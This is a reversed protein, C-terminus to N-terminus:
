GLYVSGEPYRILPPTKTALFFGLTLPGLRGLFMIVCIVARGADSLEATIGRSLGVTGFASTVEFALDLFPIDHTVLLVFLGTLIVLLSVTLLAMVKIGQETGISYGFAVIRGSKRFFAVTALLLVVFTTVKIGGATSTSGGGIVMLVMTFMATSERMASTDMSNFGATRPTVSEFWVGGLKSGLSPLSGLTAPNNWELVGTVVFSVAILAMSGALMIRTHLAFREWKRLAFVNALVAFGLGGVIFQLSITALLLPEDIFQMLSDPFLAFGANNFASVSHFAAYWLGQIWGFEPVFVVALLALGLVEFLVVVRFILWALELLGGLSGLGIEEQLFRRQPISIQMGLSSLVVVAFTMLGMGGLHILIMLIAQGVPTFVAGTDVVVLGTVTVASTATFLADSWSIPTTTSAPLLLLITGAGIFAAYLLALLAPAPLRLLQKM